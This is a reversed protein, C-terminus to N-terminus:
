SAALEMKRKRGVSKRSSGGVDRTRSETAGHPTGAGLGEPTEMRKQLRSAGTGNQRSGVMAATAKASSAAWQGSVEEEWLMPVATMGPVQEGARQRDILDVCTRLLLNVDYGLLRVPLVKAPAVPFNAHGVVAVDVPVNVGAAALGALAQEVFNDDLVLLADPREPDHMMIEVANSAGARTRLSVYQRWRRHSIMGREALGAQLWTDFQPGMGHDIVAVRRRGLAALHDLAKAVWQAGNGWVVPVNAYMQASGVAVRPIGPLDLIPTNVMQFPENAFIVGAVRQTEMYAILRQRDESDTHETIGHFTMMRRGSEQQFTVAAQSLAQYYRSWQEPSFRNTPDLNFVLAYQNLHPPKAVVFTGSRSRSEIFGERELQKLATQVTVGAVGFRVSLDRQSGLQCGPPFRGDVIEQRIRAVIERNKSGM